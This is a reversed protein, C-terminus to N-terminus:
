KRARLATQFRIKLVSMKLLNLEENMSCLKICFNACKRLFQQVTNRMLNKLSDCGYLAIISLTRPTWKKDPCLTHTHELCHTYSYTYIHTNWATHTHIHIYTFRQTCLSLLDCFTSKLFDGNFNHVNLRSFNL